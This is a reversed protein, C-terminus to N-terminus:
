RIAKQTQTSKNDATVEILLGKAVLTDVAASPKLSVKEDPNLFVNDVTSRVDGKYIFDKM